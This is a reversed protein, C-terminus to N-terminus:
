TLARKVDTQRNSYKQQITQRVFRIFKVYVEYELHCTRCILILTWPFRDTHMLASSQLVVFFPLVTIQKLTQLALAKGRFFEMSNETGQNDRANTQGALKPRNKQSSVQNAFNISIQTFGDSPTIIAIVSQRFKKMIRIHFQKSTHQM